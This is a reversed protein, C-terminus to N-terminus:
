AEIFFIMFNRPLLCTVVFYICLHAVYNCLTFFSILSVLLSTLYWIDLLPLKSLLCSFVESLLDYQSSAQLIHLLSSSPYFIVHLSFFVQLPGTTPFLRTHKLFLFAALTYKPCTPLIWFIPPGTAWPM